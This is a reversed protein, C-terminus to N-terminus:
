RLHLPLADMWQAAHEVTGVDLRDGREATGVPPQEIGIRADM